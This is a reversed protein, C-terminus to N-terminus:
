AEEPNENCSLILFQMRNLLSLLQGSIGTNGRAARLTSHRSNQHLTAQLFPCVPLTDCTPTRTRTCHGDCQHRSGQTFPVWLCGQLEKRVWGPKCWTCAGGSSGSGNRLVATDREGQETGEQQEFCPQAAAAPPVGGRGLAWKPLLCLKQFPPPTLTSCINLARHLCHELKDGACRGECQWAAPM